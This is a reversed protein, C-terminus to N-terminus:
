IKLLRLFHIKGVPYGTTPASEAVAQIWQAHLTHTGSATFPPNPGVRQRCPTPSEPVLNVENIVGEQEGCIIRRLLQKVAVILYPPVQNHMHCCHVATLMHRAHM